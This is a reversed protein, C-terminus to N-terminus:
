KKEKAKKAMMAAQERQKKQKEKKQKWKRFANKPSLTWALAVCLGKGIKDGWVLIPTVVLAIPWMAACVAAGLVCVLTRRIARGALHTEGDAARQIYRLTTNNNDDELVRIFTPLLFIFAPALGWLYITSLSIM